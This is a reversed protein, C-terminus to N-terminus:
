RGQRALRGGSEGAERRLAHIVEDPRRDRVLRATMDLYGHLANVPRGRADKVAVSVQVVRTEVQSGDASRMNSAGAQAM